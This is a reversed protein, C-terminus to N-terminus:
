NKILKILKILEENNITSINIKLLYIGKPIDILNIQYPFVFFRGTMKITKLYQGNSNYIGISKINIFESENQLQIAYQFPNPFVTIKELLEKRNLHINDKTIIIEDLRLPFLAGPEIIISSNLMSSMSEGITWNFSIRENDVRANATYIGSPTIENKAINYDQCVAIRQFLLSLLLIWENKLVTKM